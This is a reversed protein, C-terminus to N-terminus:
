HGCPSLMLMVTNWKLVEWLFNHISVKNVLGYFIIINSLYIHKLNISHLEDWISPTLGNPSQMQVLCCGRWQRYIKLTTSWAHQVSVNVRLTLNSHCQQSCGFGFLTFFTIKQRHSFDDLKYNSAEPCKKKMYKAKSITHGM